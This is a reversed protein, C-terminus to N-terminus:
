RARTRGAKPLYLHLFIKKSHKKKALAHYALWGMAPPPKPKASVRLWRLLIPFIKPSLLPQLVPNSPPNVMPRSPTSPTFGGWRYAVRVKFNGKLSKRVSAGSYAFVSFILSQRDPLTAWCNDSGIIYRRPVNNSPPTYAPDYTFPFTRIKGCVSSTPTVPTRVELNSGNSHPNPDWRSWRLYRNRPNSGRRRRPVPPGLPRLVPVAPPRLPQGGPQLEGRPVSRPDSTHAPPLAALKLPM